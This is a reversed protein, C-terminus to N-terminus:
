FRGVVGWPLGPLELDLVFSGWGGLAAVRGGALSGPLAWLNLWRERSSTPPPLTKQVSLGRSGKQFEM